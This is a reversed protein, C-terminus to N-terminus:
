GRPLEWTRLTRPAAIALAVDSGVVARLTASTCIAGTVEMRGIAVPAMVLAVDGSRPTDTERLGIAAFRKSCAAIIGGESDLLTGWQRRSYTGRRDVMPDPLDNEMIWDAMFACCDLTQGNRSAVKELYASLDTM